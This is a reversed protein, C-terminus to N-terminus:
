LTEEKEYQPFEIIVKFLDGDLQIEFSGGQLNTLDKAISLGLGSGETTRSSDGRTFREMLEEPSINLPAASINRLMFTITKERCDLDAYVRTGSLAYKYVNQLVNEIVRYLRRGDALVVTKKDTYHTILSLEKKAFKDEFEGFAQKMLEDFAIPMMELEINGSTAKAAEVLDEALQKMRQAKRDLVEIYHEAEPTPMKEAKLLEIYNIISTLPTKLDHSVNTILETKMREDKLSTEVAAKLGDGIHNIGDTLEKFIGSAKDNGIKHELDGKTIEEVGKTLRNIDRIIDALKLVALIQFMLYLVGGIISLESSDMGIFGIFVVTCIFNVVIYLVFLAALKKTGKMNRFFNRIVNIMKLLAKWIKGGFTTQEEATAIMQEMSVRKIDKAFIRRILMRNWLNHSQGRRVFSLTFLMVFLASPMAIWLAKIVHFFVPYVGIYSDFMPYPYANIYSYSMHYMNGACAICATMLGIILILWLETPLNDFRNLIVETSERDSKGTTKILWVAQIVTLIWTIIAMIGFFPLYKVLFGYEHYYSVIPRLNSSLTNLEIGISLQARTPYNQWIRGDNGFNIEGIQMGDQFIFFRKDGSAKEIQYHDPVAEVDSLKEMNSDVTEGNEYYYLIGGQRLDRLSMKADMVSEYDACALSAFQGVSYNFCNLLPLIISDYRTHNPDATDIYETLERLNYIYHEMPTFYMDYPTFFLEDGPQYMAYTGVFDVDNTLPKQFRKTSYKIGRAACEEETLYSGLDSVEHLDFIFYSEESFGESFRRDTNRLGTERFLERFNETDLYLYSNEKTWDSLTYQIDSYDTLDHVALNETGLYYQDLVSLDGELDGTEAYYLADLDYKRSRKMSYDAIMLQGDDIVTDSNYIQHINNILNWVESELEGYYVFHKSFDPNPEFIINKGYKEVAYATVVASVVFAAFTVLCLFGRFRKGSTSYSWKNTRKKEEM